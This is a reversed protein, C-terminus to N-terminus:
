SDAPSTEEGEAAAQRRAEAEQLRRRIHERIDKSADTGEEKCLALFPVWLDKEIRIPRKPTGASTVTTLTGM